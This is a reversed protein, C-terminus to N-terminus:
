NQPRVVDAVDLMDAMASLSESDYRVDDDAIIVRDNSALELGTLVGWAKGNLVKL